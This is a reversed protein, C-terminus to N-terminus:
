QNKKYLSSAYGRESGVAAIFWVFENINYNVILYNGSKGIRTRRFRYGFILPFLPLVFVKPRVYFYGHKFKGHIEKKFVFETNQYMSVIANKKSQFEIKISQEEPKGISYPGVRFLQNILTLEYEGPIQKLSREIVDHSNTYVGNLELYKDKDVPSVVQNNMEISALPKCGSVVILILMSVYHLFKM